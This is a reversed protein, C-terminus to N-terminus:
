RSARATRTRADDAGCVLTDGIGDFNIDAILADVVGDGTTDVAVCPVQVGGAFSGLAHLAM